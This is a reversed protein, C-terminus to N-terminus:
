VLRLRARQRRHPTAYVGQPLFLATARTASLRVLARTANNLAELDEESGTGTSGFWALNLLFLGDNGEIRRKWRGLTIGEVAFITGGDDPEDSMPDWYFQGGGCDGSNRYGRVSVEADDGEPQLARLHKVSPLTTDGSM